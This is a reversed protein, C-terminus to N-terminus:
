GLLGCFVVWLVSSPGLLRVRPRLIVLSWATSAGGIFLCIRTQASATTQGPRHGRPQRLRRRRGGAPHHERHAGRGAPPAAPRRQPRAGVPEPRLHQLRARRGARYHLLVQRLRASRAAPLRAPVSHRGCPSM